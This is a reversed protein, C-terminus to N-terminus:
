KQIDLERRKMSSFRWNEERCIGIHGTRKELIKTKFTRKEEGYAFNAEPFNRYTWNEEGRTASYRVNEEGCESRCYKRYTRKKKRYMNRFVLKKEQVRWEKEGLHIRFYRFVFLFFFCSCCFRM